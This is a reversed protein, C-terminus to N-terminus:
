LVERKLHGTTYETALSAREGKQISKAANLIEKVQVENERTIHFRIVSPHLDNLIGAENGVWLPKGNYIENICDCCSTHVFFNANYRDKLTLWSPTKDCGRLNNKVCQASVMLPQYGYLFLDANLLELQEMEKKNLESPYTMRIQIGSLRQYEKVAEKNYGYFMYDAIMEKQYGEEILWSFEELNRVLLGDIENTFILAKKAKLEEMQRKRAIQPLMLYCQKGATKIKNLISQPDEQQKLEMWSLYIKMVERDETVIDLYELNEMSVAIQIQGTKKLLKEIDAPMAGNKKAEEIVPGIVEVHDEGDKLILKACQDKQIIIKGKLNEKKKQKLGEDIREIMPHNLTRKIEMGEHLKKMKQGNLVVKSGAKFESPSTLEVKEESNIRIQLADGKHIDEQATFSIKGKMLKSIKGVYLGQHDPRKMSMMDKGHYEKYYGGTFGGRNFVEMLIKLDESEVKYPKESLYLDVYKRYIRTVEGVYRPGKMRGEIKLSDVGHDLIEPLHEITCLDKLSLPYANKTNKTGDLYFPLRCTGACRGRNGSRGGLMSSMFCQGSYCYCLAGHVFCEMDLGTDDKIEQIEELSLERAPVVRKAGMKKAIRAGHVGTITMQTSAHIELKPFHKRIVSVAGLDQVIVADLGQEYFPKLFGPLLPLEEEKMLTNVTLFLKKGYLHVYDIAELLEEKNFNGAYARAGFMEGGLYVADAGNLIAAKLCEMSGAPALVEIPRNKTRM